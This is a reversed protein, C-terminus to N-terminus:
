VYCSKLRRIYHVEGDFQFKHYEQKAVEFDIKRDSNVFPVITIDEMHSVLEEVEIEFDYEDLIRSDGNDLIYRNFEDILNVTMPNIGTEILLTSVINMFEASSAQCDRVEDNDM